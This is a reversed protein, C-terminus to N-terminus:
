IKQGKSKALSEAFAKRDKERKLKRAHDALDTVGKPMGKLLEKEHENRM